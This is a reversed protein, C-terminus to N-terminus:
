LRAIARGLGRRYSAAVIPRWTPEFTRRLREV